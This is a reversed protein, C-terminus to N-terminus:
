SDRLFEWTAIVACHSKLLHKIQLKREGGGDFYL